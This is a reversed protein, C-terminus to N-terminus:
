GDETSIIRRGYVLLAGQGPAIILKSADKIEDLPSPFRYWLTNSDAGDWQIVQALQGKFINFLGM